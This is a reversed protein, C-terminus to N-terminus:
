IIIKQPVLEILYGNPDEVFAIQHLIKGFTPDLADTAICHTKKEWSTTPIGEVPGDGVIKVIKVGEGRLREFAAKVDPMTFGLHNFGLNPPTNGNSIYSAMFDIYFHPTAKPDRIRLMCHNLQYGITPHDDLIPPNNELDGPQQVGVPCLLSTREPSNSSHAM